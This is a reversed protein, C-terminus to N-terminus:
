RGRDSLCTLGIKLLSDYRYWLQFNIVSIIYLSKLKTVYCSFVYYM